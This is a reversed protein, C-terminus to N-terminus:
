RVRLPHGTTLNVQYVNGPRCHLWIPTEITSDNVLRPITGTYLLPIPTRRGDRRIEMVREVCGTGMSDADTRADTFWVQVGAPTTLLLSDVALPPVATASDATPRAPPSSRCAGSTLVLGLCLRARRTM